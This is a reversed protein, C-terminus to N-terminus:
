EHALRGDPGYISADADIKGDVGVAWVDLDLPTDRIWWAIIPIHRTVGNVRDVAYFGPQAPIITPM